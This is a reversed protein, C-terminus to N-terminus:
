DRDAGFAGHLSFYADSTATVEGAPRSRSGHWASFEGAVHEPPTAAHDGNGFFQGSWSGKTDPTTGDGFDVSGSFTSGSISTAGLRVTQQETPATSGDLPTLATTTITGSIMDTGFDASLSAGGVFHGRSVDKSGRVRREFSGAAGGSYIAAGRVSALNGQNFPDSGAWLVSSQISGVTPSDAWWGFVVYDSDPTDTNTDTSADTPTFVWMGTGSYAGGINQIRCTGFGCALTGATGGFTYTGTPSAHQVIDRTEGSDLGGTAALLSWFAPNDSDVSTGYVDGFPAAEREDATQSTYLHIMQTGSTFSAGAFESDTHTLPAIAGFDHNGDGDVDFGSGISYATEGNALSLASLINSRSLYDSPSSGAGPNPDPVREATATGSGPGGTTATPNIDDSFEVVCTSGGEPCSWRVGAFDVHGGPAIVLTRQDANALAARLSNGSPVEVVTPSPPEPAPDAPNYAVMAAGGTSTATQVGTVPDSSVNLVCNPGGDPCSVTTDGVTVSEGAAITTMGDGLDPSGMLDVMYSPPDSEPTSAPTETSATGGNNSSSCGALVFAAVLAVVLHKWHTM